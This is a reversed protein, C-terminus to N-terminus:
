IWAMVGDPLDPSLEDGVRERERSIGFKINWRRALSEDSGRRDNNKITVLMTIFLRVIIIRVPRDLLFTPFLVLIKGRFCNRVISREVKRRRNKKTRIALPSFNLNSERWSDEKKMTWKRNIEM